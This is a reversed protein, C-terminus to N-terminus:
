EEDDFTVDHDVYIQQNPFLRAFDREFEGKTHESGVFDLQSETIAEGGADCLSWAVWKISHTKGDFDEDVPEESLSLYIMRADPHSAVAGHIADLLRSRGPKHVQGNM